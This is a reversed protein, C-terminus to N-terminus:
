RSSSPRRFSSTLRRPHPDARRQDPAAHHLRMGYDTREVRIEPRDYERLVKAIPMTRIRRRAASSSATARRPTRTRSSSTCGRPMRRTSASRSRRCGTATGTARSPSRTSADPAVFCDFHPFAPPAGEGLYAFLMGSKEVVPCARLRIHECLRSGEPEAPTEICKGNVDFLWGHFSCRLGGDELRGYALDAGRHPCHREVLGYKGNSKFLVWNEGLVTVAKVPREGQM